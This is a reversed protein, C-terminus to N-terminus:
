SQFAQSWKLCWFFYGGPFSTEFWLDSWSWINSRIKLNQLGAEDENKVASNVGRGAVGGAAAEAPPRHRSASWAACSILWYSRTAAWWHSIGARYPAAQVLEWEGEVSCWAYYYVRHSLRSCRFGPSPVALVSLPFFWLRFCYFSISNGKQRMTWLETTYKSKLMKMLSAKLTIATLWRNWKIIESQFVFLAASMNRHKLEHLLSELCSKTLM